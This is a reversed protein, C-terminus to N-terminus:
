KPSISPQEYGNRLDRCKIQDLIAFTMKTAIEQALHKRDSNIRAAGEAVVGDFAMAELAGDCLDFRDFEPASNADINFATVHLKGDPCELHLTFRYQTHM